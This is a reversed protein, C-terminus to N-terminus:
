CTIVQIGQKKCAEIHGKSISTDTIITTFENLACVYELSRKGFKSSDVVLIVENALRVMERKMEAIYHWRDTVGAEPDVSFAGLIVKSVSGFNRLSQVALPGSLGYRTDKGGVVSGGTLTVSVDPSKYAIEYAINVANTLVGVGSPLVRAVESTTSGADICVTEGPNILSAARRAIRRKEALNPIRSPHACDQNLVAGGHTRKITMQEELFDLDRRITHESVGFKKSLTAVDCFGKELLLDVIARRRDLISRRPLTDIVEPRPM